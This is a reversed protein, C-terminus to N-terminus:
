RLATETAPDFFYLSSPDVVLRIFRDEEAATRPDLRATFTTTEASGGELLSGDAVEGEDVDRALELTDRT